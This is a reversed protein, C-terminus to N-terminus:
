TEALDQEGDDKQKSTGVVIAKMKAVQSDPVKSRAAMWLSAPSKVPSTRKAASAKAPVTRLRKPIRHTRAGAPVQEAKEQEDEFRALLEHWRDHCQTSMRNSAMKKSVLMWDVDPEDNHDVFAHDLVLSRLKEDEESTWARAPRNLREWRARVEAVTREPFRRRAVEEIRDVGLRGVSNRLQLDDKRRWAKVVALRPDRFRTTVVALPTSFEESPTSEPDSEEEADASLKQEQAEDHPSAVEECGGVEAYADPPPQHHAYSPAPTAVVIAPPPYYWYPDVTPYFGPSFPVPYPQPPYYYHYVASGYPPPFPYYPSPPVYYPQPPPLAAEDEQEATPEDVPPVPTGLEEEQRGGGEPTQSAESM